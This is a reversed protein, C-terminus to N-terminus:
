LSVFIHATIKLLNIYIMLAWYSLILSVVLQEGHYLLFLETKLLTAEVASSVNGIKRLQM